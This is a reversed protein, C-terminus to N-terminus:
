RKNFDNIIIYRSGDKQKKIAVYKDPFEERLQELAIQVLIGDLPRTKGWGHLYVHDVVPKIYNKIMSKQTSIFEAIELKLYLGYSKNLWNFLMYSFANYRYGEKGILLAADEGDLFIYAINAEVDVEITDIDFCSKALLNKLDDEIKKALNQPSDTGDVRSEIESNPSNDFFNDLIESQQISKPYEELPKKDEKPTKVESTVRDESEKELGREPTSEQELTSKEEKNTIDISRNCSAVIIARKTFFGLIGKQPYQIIEYKLERISCGLERCAITYAEDLSEAEIKKM